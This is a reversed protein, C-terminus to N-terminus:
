YVDHNPFIFSDSLSSKPLYRTLEDPLDPWRHDARYPYRLFAQTAHYRALDHPSDQTPRGRFKRTRYRCQCRSCVGCICTIPRGKDHPM